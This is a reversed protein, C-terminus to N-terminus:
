SKNVMYIYRNLRLSVCDNLQLTEIQLTDQRYEIIYSIHCMHLKYFEYM